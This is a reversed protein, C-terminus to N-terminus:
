AGLLFNLTWNWVRDRPEFHQLYWLNDKSNEDGDHVGIYYSVRPAM